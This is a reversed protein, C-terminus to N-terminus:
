GTRHWRTILQSPLTSTSIRLEHISASYNGPMEPTSWIEAIFESTLAV